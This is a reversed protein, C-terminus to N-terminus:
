LGLNLSTEKRGVMQKLTKKQKRLTFINMIDVNKSLFMNEEVLLKKNIAKTSKVYKECDSESIPVFKGDKMKNPFPDPWGIQHFCNINFSQKENYIEYNNAKIPLLAIKITEHKIALEDNLENGRNVTFDVREEIIELIESQSM